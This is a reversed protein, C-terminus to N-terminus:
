REKMATKLDLTLDSLTYDIPIGATEAADLM